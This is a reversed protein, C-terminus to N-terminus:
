LLYYKHMSSKNILAKFYEKDTNYLIPHKDMLKQCLPKVNVITLDKCIKGDFIALDEYPIEVIGISCWKMFLRKLHKKGVPVNVNSRYDIYNNIIEGLSYKSRYEVKDNPLIKVSDEISKYFYNFFKVEEKDIHIRDYTNYTDYNSLWFKYYCYYYSDCNSYKNDIVQTSKVLVRRPMNYFYKTYTKIRISTNRYSIVGDRYLKNYAKIIDVTKYENHDKIFSIILDKLSENSEVNFPIILYLVNDKSCNTIYAYNYNTQKCLYRFLDKQITNM